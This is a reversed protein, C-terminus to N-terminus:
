PSDTKQIKRKDHYHNRLLKFGQADISRNMKQLRNNNFSKKVFIDKKKSM